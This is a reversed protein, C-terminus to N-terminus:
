RFYGVEGTLVFIFLDLFTRFLLVKSYILNMLIVSFKLLLEFINNSILSLTVVNFSGFIISLMAIETPMADLPIQLMVIITISIKGYLNKKM